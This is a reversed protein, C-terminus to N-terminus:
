IGKTWPLITNRKKEKRNLSDGSSISCTNPAQNNMNNMNNLSSSSLPFANNKNCNLDPSLVLETSNKSLSSSAVFNAHNLSKVSPSHTLGSKSKNKNTKDVNPKSILPKGEMENVICDKYLQSKLFRSYSDHRM